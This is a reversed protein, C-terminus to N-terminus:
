GGNSVAVDGLRDFYCRVTTAVWLSTIRPIVVRLARYATYGDKRFPPMQNDTDRTVKHPRGKPSRREYTVKGQPKRDGFEVYSYQNAPVYGGRTRRTSQAAVLTPPNQGVVRPKVKSYTAAQWPTTVRAAIEQQWIPAAQSRTQQTIARRLDRDAAKVALVAAAVERSARVPIGLAM